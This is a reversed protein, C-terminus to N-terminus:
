PPVGPLAEWLAGQAPIRVAEEEQTSKTAGEPKAPTRLRFVFYGTKTRTKDNM